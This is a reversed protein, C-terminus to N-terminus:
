RSRSWRFIRINRFWSKCIPLPMPSITKLVSPPRTEQLGRMLIRIGALIEEGHELMLRHDATLYPECEVGNILLVKVKMGQPPMLKVHTPFTAGGLGVIGAEQIKTLIEKPDLTCDSALTASRDIHEMWEDGEVDIYIGQKQYGSADPGLDIKKVTGSVSSHINASVFGSAQAILQGVKVADGKKVLAQAPAGIHQSVPIFVTKPLPLSEIAKGASLKNEAPHVGGLKFTKLV